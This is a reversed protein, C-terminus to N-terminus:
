KERGARKGRTLQRAKAMGALIQPNKDLRIGLKAFISQRKTLSPPYKMLSDISIMRLLTSTFNKGKVMKYTEVMEREPITKFHNLRIAIDILRYTVTGSEVLIEDYLPAM